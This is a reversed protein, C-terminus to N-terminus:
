IITNLSLIGELVERLIIEGLHYKIVGQNRFYQLAKWHILCSADFIMKNRNDSNESLQYAISASLANNEDHFFLNGGLIEGQYEALFLIGYKQMFQSSVINLGLPGAYNKRILFKKHIKHFDEFKNSLAVTIGNKEAQRIHRRHQRNIKDWVGNM